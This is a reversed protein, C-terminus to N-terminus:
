KKTTYSLPTPRGSAGNGRERGRRRRTRGHGLARYHPLATPPAGVGAHIAGLPSRVGTGAQKPACRITSPAAGAPTTGAARPWLWARRQRARSRHM